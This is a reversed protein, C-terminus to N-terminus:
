GFITIRKTECFQLSSQMLVYRQFASRQAHPYTFLEYLYRKSIVNCEAGTDPVAM